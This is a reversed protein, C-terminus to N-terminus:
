YTGGLSTTVPLPQLSRHGKLAGGGIASGTLLLSGGSGAGPAKLLLGGKVARGNAAALVRQSKGNTMDKRPVAGGGELYLRKKRCGIPQSPTQGVQSILPAFLSPPPQTTPAPRSKTHSNALAPLSPTRNTPCLPVTTPDSRRPKLLQPLRFHHSRPRPPDPPRRRPSDGHGTCQWDPFRM